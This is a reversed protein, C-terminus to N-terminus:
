PEALEQAFKRILGAMVDLAAPSVSDIRHFIMSRVIGWNAPVLVLVVARLKRRLQKHTAIAEPERLANM